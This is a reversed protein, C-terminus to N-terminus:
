LTSLRDQPGEQPLLRSGLATKRKFQEKKVKGKAQPLCLLSLSHQPSGASLFTPPSPNPPHKFTLQKFLPGDHQCQPGLFGSVSVVLWGMLM